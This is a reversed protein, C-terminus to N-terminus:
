VSREPYVLYVPMGRNIEILVTTYCNQDTANLFKKKTLVRIWLLRIQLLMLHYKPIITSESEAIGKETTTTFLQCGIFKLTM